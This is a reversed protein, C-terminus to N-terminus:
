PIRKLLRRYTFIPTVHYKDSATYIYKISVRSNLSDTASIENSTLMKRGGEECYVKALTM